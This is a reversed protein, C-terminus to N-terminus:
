VFAQKQQETLRFNQMKVGSERVIIDRFSVPMTKNQSRKKLDKLFEGLGFQAVLDPALMHPTERGIPKSFYLGSEM